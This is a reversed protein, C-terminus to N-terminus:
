SQAKDSHHKSKLYEVHERDTQRSQALRRESVRATCISIEEKTFLPTNQSKIYKILDRSNSIVNDPMETKFTSTGVFVVISFITDEEIDIRSAIVKTHKFNQHLPNQFKHKKARPAPIQTWQKERASGFIWGNMNKTEIVFIGYESVVIHDIQTTGDDARLTVDDFLVYQKKDLQRKLARNIIFEGIKGKFRPSGLYAFVVAFFLGLFFAAFIFSYDGM